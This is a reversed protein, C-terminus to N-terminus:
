GLTVANNHNEAPSVVAANTTFTFYTVGSDVGGNRPDPNIGLLAAMAYSAEGIIDDPGEDGFIGYAIKNNYIVGIVAGLKIGANTYSFRSSPLPIVAYPLTSAVLPAGTSDSLSTEDFSM